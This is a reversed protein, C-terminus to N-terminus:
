MKISLLASGCANALFGLVTLCTIKYVKYFDGSKVAEVKYSRVLRRGLKGQYREGNNKLHKQFKSSSEHVMATFSIFMSLCVLGVCLCSFCFFSVFSEGRGSLRVFGLMSQVILMGFISKIQPVYLQHFVENYSTTLIRLKSYILMEEELNKFYTKWVRQRSLLMQEIASKFTHM